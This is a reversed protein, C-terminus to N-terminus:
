VRKLNTPSAYMKSTFSKEFAVTQHSVIESRRSYVTGPPLHGESLPGARDSPLRTITPVSGKGRAPARPYGRPEPTPGRLSFRLFFTKAQLGHFTFFVNGTRSQFTFFVNRTGFTFRLFFTESFRQIAISHSVYFLCMHTEFFM